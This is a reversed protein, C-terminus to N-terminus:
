RGSSPPLTDVAPSATGTSKVSKVSEVSDVAAPAPHKVARKEARREQRERRNAQVSARWRRYREQLDRLSQFEQRYYVGVGNDQLGQSEDFRDITRTFGKVKLSGSKNLVWTLYGDVSLPNNTVQYAGRQGVDYNGGVELSLKNAILDAGVDFTVEESTLESQPRYGFRINYNSGSILNSIQNSLFEMGAVGALSGSMTGITASQDDPMFSNSLMLYAFQMTTAEETNLLNRLLNKTEPDAGPATVSLQVTPNFLHETLRIGCNVNVNGSGTAGTNSQTNGLLPRLSTRVRYVADIDVTPDTPDGAWQISSGPQIVFYKNALVGYLTYLYTGESIDYQGDMTFLDRDPVVRIRFRGAGRGRIVDGLRPDMVIQAETNPLVTLNLDVNLESKTRLRKRHLRERLEQLRNAPRQQEQDASAFTIFDAESITSVGSLPLVFTSNRATEARLDLLTHFDDGSVSFGGTAYMRGYFDPNDAESTNLCLMDHFELRVGFRLRRFYESDLWASITGSGGADDSIPVAPLEFRNDRVSVPGGFRYRARTYAVTARYEEVDVSGNLVPGGEPGGTMALRTRARGETDILIGQLLPQLLYMDFRPFDFDVRYRREPSNYIGSIPREGEPTTAAFRIWRRPRDWTSHFDVRGLPYDNMALSDLRLDAEFQLDGFPAVVRADGGLRGAIRYGQRAVLRTLPSMDFNRLRVRLTDGESASARGDVALEQGEGRLRFQRFDVGSTDAVIHSPAIYWHQGGVTFTTPRFAVDMQPRGGASRSFTTRTSILAASGNEPNEFRTALAIRNDRIGGVVSLNPFDLVGIGFQEASGYLSVSDGQNRCEVSLNGVYMNRRLIYESRASLSFEDRGPNFLFTLSSGRAVELGPVFIAAVNNAEKVHVRALYYGEDNGIDGGTATTDNEPTSEPSPPTGHATQTTLETEATVAALSPLYRRLSVGLWRFLRSYSDSGRLELDAFDSQMAFHKSRASNRAEFRITGARVTDIHNVYSLSDITATGNITEPETGTAHARFRMALRSVTDRRNFGLATLDARRLDMEFDYAPVSGSLDFRGETAFTLNPDESGIRGTFTRGSFRGNMRIGSYAYGRFELRSVEADTTLELEGERATADVGASVSVAGLQGAGLLRGLDFQESRVEGLFRIAEERGLPGQGEVPMFRLRGDVAGQALSLRGTATFDRLRGDFRGAFGITGTRELLPRLRELSKRGGSVNTYITLIDQADTELHEVEVHFRAQSLDPLGTVRFSADLATGTGTRLERLRGQLDALTGQVTAEELGVTARVAEDSRRLFPTVTRYAVASPDVAVDLRVRHAFDGFSSWDDYLLNARRFQLLSLPTEVRLGDIRVGSGGLTARPASLQQLRFGSKERFALHEIRAAVSDRAVVIGRAQFHINRLDLDRFDVRNGVAPPLSSEKRYTFRMGILNVERATLNLRIPRPPDPRFRGIVRGLNTGGSSDGRVHLVGDSVTVTGVALDGGQLLNLGDIGVSLRRAYLLTDSGGGEGGEGNRAPDAVYIGELIARNFFAIEVREITITTGARESLWATLRGAAYQQVAGVQLLLGALIPVIVIVVVLACVVTTVGRVIQRITARLTDSKKPPTIHRPENM